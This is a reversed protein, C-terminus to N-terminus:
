ASLGVRKDFDKSAQVANNVASSASSSRSGRGIAQGARAALKDKVDKDAKSKTIKKDKWLYSVALDFLKAKSPVSKGAEQHRKAISVMKESLKARNEYEVSGPVVDEFEGEGLVDKFDEGLSNVKSDFWDTFRDNKQQSIMKVLEAKEAKLTKIEDTFKQGLANVTKVLGEDYTETDLGCDFPKDDEAPKKETKAEAKPTESESGKKQRAELATLATELDKEDSYESAKERTLGLLEARDLIEDSFKEASKNEDEKKDSSNKDDAVEGGTKAGAIDDVASDDDGDKSQDFKTQLDLVEQPIESKAEKEIETAM